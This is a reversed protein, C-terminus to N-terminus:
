IYLVDSKWFGSAVFEFITHMVFTPFNWKLRQKVLLLTRIAARVHRSHRHHTRPTWAHLLAARLAADGACLDWVTHADDGIQYPISADAGASILLWTLNPLKAKVAIHLATERVPLSQGILFRRIGNVNAGRELLLEVLAHASTAGDQEGKRRATRSPADWLADGACGCARCAIHLPTEEADQEISRRFNSKKEARVADVEAEADLLVRACELQLHEVAMHIPKWTTRAISRLETRNACMLVNPDAGYRLFLRLLDINNTNIVVSLGMQFATSSNCSRWTSNKCIANLTAGAKLLTEVLEVNVEHPPCMLVEHLPSVHSCQADCGLRPFLPLVQGRMRTCESGRESKRPSYRDVRTAKVQPVVMPMNAHRGSIHEYAANAGIALLHKVTDLDQTKCADLLQNNLKTYEMSPACVSPM